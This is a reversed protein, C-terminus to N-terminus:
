PAPLPRPNRPPGFACRAWRSFGMSQLLDAQGAWVDGVGAVRGAGEGVQDTVAAAVQQALPNLLGFAAVQPRDAGEGAEEALVDIGDGGTEGQGVTRAHDLAM